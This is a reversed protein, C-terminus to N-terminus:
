TCWALFNGPSKAIEALITSASYTYGGEVELAQYLSMQGRPSGIQDV